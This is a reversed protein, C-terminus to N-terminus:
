EDRLATAPSTSAARWAPAAAALLATACLIAPAASFAVADFPTVGFLLSALARSLLAAGALGAVTGLAVVQVAERLVLRVVERTNAGLAMRIALERRRRQVSFALLGAVGVTAVLLALAAFLTVLRARFRPQATAAAAIEDITRVQTLALNRDVRAVATAIAHQMTGPPVLTRVSLTSWFWPNQTLPVYIQVADGQDSPTELVQRAVGVIQRTVPTPGKPAMADVRVQLTLPDRGRAFRRVFAESVVCVAASRATDGADFARGRVIPIGLTDFFAAGTIQYHASPQNAADPEPDGVVSFGQGIDWGDLPLSGGFSARAVGPLASLEREVGEYFALTAEPTPYRSDPLAATMTLVSHERNGPEVHNLVLLTRILLGAGALLVIAVSVEGAALAARLRGARDTSTRNGTTMATALPVETAHWAPALGFLLGTLLTLLVAFAAVRVDLTLEIGQPLTDAPILAPAARLLPMTVAMAAVGGLASLLLSETLLQRVLRARSGGLAVRVAIERTRAIGRALLLSAINACAMLLVLAVIAILVAATTKLDGGVLAQRLPEVTVSWGKNTAPSIRAIGRAVSAMDARAGDITVGPRLRGIVQLYHMQRQEPTRQPKFVFWLESPFLIQFSAPVIGIVTHPEDDFRVPRGVIAPDGGFRRRWLRESIVVSHAAPAADDDRFTRGAVPVVGLTDFFRTTVAQGEIREPLVGPRTLTRSGGAIATMGSFTRNQESWDVYNLPAVRNHAWDPAAEWLMVLADPDPYRLPRLLAADFLSFITTTAAIGLTLIAVALVTFGRARALM